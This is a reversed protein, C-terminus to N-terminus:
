LLVLSLYHINILHSVLDSLKKSQGPTIRIGLELQDAMAGKTFNASGMFGTLKDCILFKAHLSLWSNDGSAPSYVSLRNRADIAALKDKLLKLASHNMGNNWNLQDTVVTVKVQPRNKCLPVITLGLREVGAPSFYPAVILLQYKTSLVLEELFVDLRPFMGDDTIGSPPTWYINQDIQLPLEHHIENFTHVTEFIKQIMGDNLLNVEEYHTIQQSDDGSALGAGILILLIAECVEIPFDDLYQSLQLATVEKTGGRSLWRIAGALTLTQSALGYRHVIRFIDRVCGSDINTM